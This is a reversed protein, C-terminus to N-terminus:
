GYIIISSSLHLLFNSNEMPSLDNVFMYSGHQQLVHPFILPLPQKSNKRLVSNVSSLVPELIHFHRSMVSCNNIPTYFMLMIQSSCFLQPFVGGKLSGKTMNADMKKSIAVGTCLALLCLTNQKM